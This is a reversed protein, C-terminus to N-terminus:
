RRLMEGRERVYGKYKTVAERSLDSNELFKNIDEIKGQVGRLFEDIIGAELGIKEGFEFFDRYSFFGLKEFADTSYGDEFLDLAMFSDNPLHLRTNLLDYFPALKPPEALPYQISFNKIHADGNSVLYNFVVAKFLKEANELYNQEGVINKLIQFMKQYSFEYKDLLGTLQAFDEIEIRENNPLVDFRKTLYAPTKDSFFVLANEAVELNFVQKAIQMTIYENAPMDTSFDFDNNYLPKLIYEGNKETLQLKGNVMKLSYKPQVGSISIKKVASHRQERLEPLSFPLIKDVNM